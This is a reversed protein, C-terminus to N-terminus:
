SHQGARNTPLRDNRRAEVARLALAARVLGAHSLAQPFNGLHAGSEHDLEEAYLGLPTALRLLEEFRATAEAARGTRALAEVLWFACPLFAGETGELGDSGPPYRYLLPGGADLGAEIADITGRVRPSDPADIDVLPLVLVAADLDHSGYRRTYAGLDPDFGHTRVEEAIAARQTEWRARRRPPCPRTGAIRLARDLALWAMLKSHVNQRPEGRIEWIGADPDRWHEAVQDAFGSIARWAEAYLRHGSNTLLWAADIVWGYVDLQHQRAAANGVRVPRSGAYGPWDDLERESRSRTGFLTLLVPLRPRDLRTAYVLWAFFARAEEVKGVGLFAGIGISADRPWSFRYDWNRMGGLQEPLSTTPAAVPAGSPSYTLLRLTLLSRVVADRFPLDTDIEDSWAIWREEDAVLYSWAAEPDVFVLPEREAIALVLTLPQGPQVTVPVPPGARLPVRPSASLAVALSGWSCVLRDGRMAVRPPARTDGLRPDFEVVAACPGGEASLRRVLLTTPLLHGGIEAVMGETLTLRAGHAEWTTEVTASNARYRRATPV